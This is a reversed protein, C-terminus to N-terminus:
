SRAKKHSLNPATMNMTALSRIISMFAQAESTVLLANTLEAMTRMSMYSRLYWAVFNLLLRHALWGRVMAAAIIRSVLVGNQAIAEFLDTVKGERLKEMDITIHNFIWSMRIVQEGTILKVKVDITRKGFIRLLLPAPITIRVSKNLLANAAMIETPNM